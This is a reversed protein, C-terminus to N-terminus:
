RKEKFKFFGLKIDQQEALDDELDRIRNSRQQVETNRTTSLERSKEAYDKDAEVIKHNNEALANAQQNVTDEQIRDEALAAEVDLVIQSTEKQFQEDTKVAPNAEFENVTRKLM